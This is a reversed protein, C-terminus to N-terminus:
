EKSNPFKTNPFRAQLWANVTAGTFEGGPRSGAAIPGGFHTGPVREHTKDTTGLAAFM